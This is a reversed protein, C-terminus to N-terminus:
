RATVSLATVSPKYKNDTEGDVVRLADNGWGYASYDFQASKLITSYSNKKGDILAGVLRGM